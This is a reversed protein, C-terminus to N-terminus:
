EEALHLRGSPFDFRLRWRGLVQLGVAGDAGAQGDSLGAQLDEFLTNGLSLARLEARGEGYAAMAKPDAGPVKAIAPSLRAPADLGTAPILAM